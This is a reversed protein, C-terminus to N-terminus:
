VLNFAHFVEGEFSREGLRREGPQEEIEPLAFGPAPQPESSVAFFFSKKDPSTLRLLTVMHTSHGPAALGGLKM